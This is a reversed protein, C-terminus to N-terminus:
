TFSFYERTELYSIENEEMHESLSYKKVCNSQLFGHLVPYL